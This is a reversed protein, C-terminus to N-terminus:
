FRLCLPTCACIMVDQSFAVSVVLSLMGLEFSAGIRLNMTGCTYRNSFLQKIFLTILHLSQDMWYPPSRTDKKTFFLKSNLLIKPPTHQSIIRHLVNQQISHIKLMASM